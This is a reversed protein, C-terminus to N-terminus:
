RLRYLPSYLLINGSIIQKRFPCFSISSYSLISFHLRIVGLPSIKSAHYFSCQNYGQIILFDKVHIVKHIVLDNYLISLIISIQNSAIDTMKWLSIENNRRCFHHGNDFFVFLLILHPRPIKQASRSEKQSFKQARKHNM